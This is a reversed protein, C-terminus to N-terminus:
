PLEFSFGLKNLDFSIELSLWGISSKGEIEVEAKESSNLRDPELVDEYSFSSVSLKVALSKSAKFESFKKSL